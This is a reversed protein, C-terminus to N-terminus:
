SHSRLTSRLRHMRLSFSRLSRCAHLKSHWRPHTRPEAVVSVCISCCNPPRITIIFWSTRLRTGTVTRVRISPHESVDKHETDGGKTSGLTIECTGAGAGQALQVPLGRCGYWGDQCGAGYEDEDDISGRKRKANGPSGRLSLGGYVRTQNLLSSYTSWVELKVTEERDGFRSILVPSVEKYLISLLEPRTEIIAALFKRLPDAFKTLPTRTMRIDMLTM